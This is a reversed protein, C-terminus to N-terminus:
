RAWYGPRTRLKRQKNRQPETLRIELERWEGDGVPNLPVYTIRYQERLDSAIRGYVRGPNDRVDLDFLEGGTERALRELVMREAFYRGSLGVAVPYIAVDYRQAAAIADALRADSDSDRGDSLMVLARQGEHGEFQRAAVVISDYLRTHRGRDILDLSTVLMQTDNTFQQLVAPLDAFSMVFAKDQDLHMLGDIFEGATDIARELQPVMSGSTDLMFGLAVPLDVGREIGRIPQERGGEVVTFDGAALEIEAGVHVYIEVEDVRSRFVEGEYPPAATEVVHEVVTGAPGFARAVIRHAAATRTNWVLEYPAQSDAFLVRGDVEFEVFLVEEPRDASVEARLEVRGSLVDGGAPATLVVAFDRLPRVAAVRQQAGLPPTAV